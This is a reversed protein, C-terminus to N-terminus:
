DGLFVSFITFLINMFQAYCFNVAFLFNIIM